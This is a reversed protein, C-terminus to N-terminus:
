ADVYRLPTSIRIGTDSVVFMRGDGSRLVHSSRDGMAEWRGKAEMRALRLEPFEDRLATFAMIAALRSM